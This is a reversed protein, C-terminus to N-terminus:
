TPRRLSTPLPETATEALVALVPPYQSALATFKSAPLRVLVAESAARITEDATGMGLLSAHGFATGRAIRFPAGNAPEAMVNGSLIVYLGDSKRGLEALVTGPEARRIEFKQAVEVRAEPEFATFLPSVHLLNMILRRALLDFLVNDVEAHAKTLGDLAKKEIRLLMLESMAVVDAQRRGEDLLAGEGFVDGEGLQVPPRGAVRVEATGNVIAYLANAPEDRTIIMKNPSVEVLEAAAALGKLAEHSSVSFLRMSAWKGYADSAPKTRVSPVPTPVMSVDDVDLTIVESVELDALSLEISAEPADSFRVGEEKKAGPAPALVAPTAIRPPPPPKPLPPPQAGARNGPPLPPPGKREEPLAREMREGRAADMAKVLKAMALARPVFGKALYREFARVFAEVANANDGSRRYAEGLRQSWQPDDPVAKELQALAKIADRPKDKEIAKEWDARLDAISV